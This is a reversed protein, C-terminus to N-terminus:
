HFHTWVYVLLVIAAAAFLVLQAWKFNPQRDSPKTMPLGCGFSQIM